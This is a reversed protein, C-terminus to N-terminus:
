MKQIIFIFWQKSTSTFNWSQSNWFMLNESCLSILTKLICSVRQSYQCCWTQLFSSSPSCCVNYKRKSRSKKKKWIMEFSLGLIGGTSDNEKNPSFGFSFIFIKVQHGLQQKRTKKKLQQNVWYIIKNKSFFIVWNINNKLLPNM